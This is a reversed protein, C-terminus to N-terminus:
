FPLVRRYCFGLIHHLELKLCTLFPIPNAESFSLSRHHWPLVSKTQPFTEIKGFIQFFPNLAYCYFSISPLKLCSIPFISHFHLPFSFPRKEIGIQRGKKGLLDM